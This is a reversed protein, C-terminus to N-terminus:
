DNVQEKWTTFFNKIKTEEDWSIGYDNDKDCLALAEETTVVRHSVIQEGLHEQSFEKAENMTVTDLAWLTKDKGYQDVGVPVEVMYRERFTSVCEVLVWQTPEKKKLEWSGDKRDIWEITDGEKWGAKELLEPPFTLIADGTESDEEINLTWHKQEM